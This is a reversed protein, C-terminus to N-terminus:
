SNEIREIDSHRIEQILDANQTKEFEKAQNNSIFKWGRTESGVLIMEFIIGYLVSKNKLFIRVKRRFHNSLIEYPDLENGPILSHGFLALVQNVKDLRLTNKGHEM